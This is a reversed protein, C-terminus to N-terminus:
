VIVKQERPTLTNLAADIGDRMQQTSITEQPLVPIMRAESLSLLHEGCVEAELQKPVTLERLFEPFLKTTPVGFFEALKTATPRYEGTKKLFPSERLSVLRCVSQYSLGAAEAIVRITRGALLNYLHLNKFRLIALIDAQADRHVRLAEKSMFGECTRWQSM